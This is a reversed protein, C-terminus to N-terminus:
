ARRQWPLRIKVFYRMDGAKVCREGQQFGAELDYYLALRERINTHAEHFGSGRNAIAVPPVTNEIEINLEDGTRYLAFNIVGGEEAPEIGHYVANEFLPQLIFPPVLLDNPIEDIHWHVQLRENLRLKELAIYQECLGIERELEVKDRPDQLLDRYLGALSELAKEAQRPDHRIMALVTNMSNFLFHPRIRASLARLRAEAIAPLLYSTRRSFYFLLLGVVGGVLTTFRLTEIWPEGSVQLVVGIRHIMVAGLVAVLLTIFQARRPQMSRLWGQFIIYLGLYAFMLPEAWTVMSSYVEWWMNWQHTRVTAGALVILNVGLLIRLSTGLNRGDPLPHAAQKERISQPASREAQTQQTQM